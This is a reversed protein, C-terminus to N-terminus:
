HPSPQLRIAVAEDALEAKNSGLIKARQLNSRTLVVADAGLECGRALLERECANPFLYPCTVSLSSLERYSGPVQAFTLLRVPHLCSSQEPGSLRYSPAPAPPSSCAFAAFVALLSCCVEARARLKDAQGSAHM